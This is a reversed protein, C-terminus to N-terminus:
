DYIEEELKQMATRVLKTEAMSLHRKEGNVVLQGLVPKGRFSFGGEVFEGAEDSETLNSHSIMIKGGAQRYITLTDDDENTVKIINM